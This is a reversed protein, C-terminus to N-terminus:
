EEHLQLELEGRKEVLGQLLTKPVQGFIPPHNMRSPRERPCRKLTGTGHALGMSRACPEPQRELLFDPSRAHTNPPSNRSTFFRSYFPPHISTPNDRLPSRATNARTAQLSVFKCGCIHQVFLCACLLFNGKRETPTKGQPNNDQEGSTSM